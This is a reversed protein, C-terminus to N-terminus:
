LLYKCGKKKGDSDIIFIYEKIELIQHILKSNCRLLFSQSKLFEIACDSKNTKQNVQM